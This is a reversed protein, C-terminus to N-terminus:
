WWTVMLSLLGTVAVSSIGVVGLKAALWQGRTVSQTWALRHTGTELERTILPAGWFAGLLAPIGVLTTGLLELLRDLEGVEVSLTRCNGVNVCAAQARAYVQYLHALHPGTMALLVAVAVLLGVAILAQLRFQRWSLRIM